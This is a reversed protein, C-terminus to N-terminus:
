NNFKDEIYELHMKAICFDKNICEKVLQVVGNENEKQWYDLDDLNEKLKLLRSKIARLKRKNVRNSNNM